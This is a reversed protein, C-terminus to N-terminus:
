GKIFRERIGEDVMINLEQIYKECLTLVDESGTFDKLKKSRCYESWDDFRYTSRSTVSTELKKPKPEGAVSISKGEESGDVRTINVSLSESLGLTEMVAIEIDKRIPVPERHININRKCRFFQLVPNGSISQEYWDKARPKANPNEKPDVENFTYQLVSRAASLFASLNYLFNQVSEYEEVMRLLFYNAEGLKMKENM